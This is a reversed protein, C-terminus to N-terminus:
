LKPRPGNLYLEVYITGSGATELIELKPLGDPMVFPIPKGWFNSFPHVAVEAAQVPIVAPRSEMGKFIFRAAFAGAHEVRAGLMRYVGSPLDNTLTLALTTWAAASTATATAQEIHTVPMPSVKPISGDSVVLALGLYHAVGAEDDEYGSVSNNDGPRLVALPNDRFDYILNPKMSLGIGKKFILPNSAITPATLTAIVPIYTASNSWLYALAILPMDGRLRLYDASTVILTDAIAALGKAAGSRDESELWAHVTQPM